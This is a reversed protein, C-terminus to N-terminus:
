QPVFGTGTLRFVVGCGPGGGNEFCTPNDVAGGLNTTGYLAGNKDAALGANPLGGDTGSSFTWLVRETWATAGAAPPTLSFVVGNCGCGAGGVETMGYLAGNKDIIVPGSPFSGDFGVSFRRLTSLTWGTKGPTLRFVTGCGGICESSGGATTTGYLAGTADAVLGGYGPAVGNVSDFPFAGDSGSFRWLTTLTWAHRGAAPPTLKFVTGCGGQCRASGGITTAGYLAGKADALLPGKPSDGDSGSFSWLTTLKWAEAGPAPPTLAFVTGAGAAGGGATTGYLVGASDAIVGGTPFGGDRGGSFHWLTTLRGGAIRFVTGSATGYIGKEAAPSGLLLLEGAGVGDEDSKAFDALVREGWATGEAPPTLAFVNGCGPGPFGFCGPATLAGSGTTGYVEGNQGVTVGAYPFGGDRGSTFAHLVTEVVRAQAPLAAILCAPLVIAKAIGYRM